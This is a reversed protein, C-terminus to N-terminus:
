RRRMLLLGVTLGVLVTSPEPIPACVEVVLDNYDRDSTYFAKDEWFLVWRSMGDGVGSVHYTVVHDEANGNAEADSLWTWRSGSRGWAFPDAASADLEAEGEVQLGDGTVTFLPTFGAPDGAAAVGFTQEDVAFRALARITMPGGQWLADATEGDYHRTVDIVSDLAIDEVRTATISGNSFDLEEDSREGRPLAFWAQGPSYTSQLIEAHTLEDPEPPQVVVYEATASSAVTIAACLMLACRLWAHKRM